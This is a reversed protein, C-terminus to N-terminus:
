GKFANLADVTFQADGPMGAMSMELFLFENGKEDVQIISVSGGFNETDKERIEFTFEGRNVHTPRGSTLTM